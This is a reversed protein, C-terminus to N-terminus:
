SLLVYSYINIVTENTNGPQTVDPVTKIGDAKDDEPTKEDCVGGDCPVGPGKYKSKDILKNLEESDGTRKSSLFLLKFLM